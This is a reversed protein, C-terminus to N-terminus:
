MKNKLYKADKANKVKKEKAMGEPPLRSVM